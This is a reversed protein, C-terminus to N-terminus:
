KIRAIVTKENVKKSENAKQKIKLDLVPILAVTISTDNKLIMKQSYNKFGEHTILFETNGPNLMLSFFGDINSITGIGSNSELINVSGLFDGTTQNTINGTITVLQGSGLLPFIFFLFLVNCTLFTKM